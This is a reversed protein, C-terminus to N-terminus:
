EHGDNQLQEVYDCVERITLDHLTSLREDPIRINLYYELDMVIELVDLSDAGLDSALNADPNLESDNVDLIDILIENVRCEIENRSYKKM